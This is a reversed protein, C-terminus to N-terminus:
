ALQRRIEPKVRLFRVAHLGWEGEVLAVHLGVVVIRASAPWCETWGICGSVKRVFLAAPQGCKGARDARCLLAVRELDRAVRCPGAVDGLQVGQQAQQLLHGTAGAAGLV